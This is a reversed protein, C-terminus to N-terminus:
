ASFRSIWGAARIDPQGAVPPCCPDTVRDGRGSAGPASPGAIATLIGVADLILSAPEVGLIVHNWASLSEFDPAEARAACALIADVDPTETPGVFNKVALGWHVTV